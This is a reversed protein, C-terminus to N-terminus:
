IFNQYLFDKESHQYHKPNLLSSGNKCHVIYYPSEKSVNNFTSENVQIAINVFINLSM